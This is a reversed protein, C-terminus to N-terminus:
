AAFARWARFNKPKPDDARLSQQRLAARRASAWNGGACRGLARAPASGAAPRRRDALRCVPEKVPGTSSRQRDCRCRNGSQTDPYVSTTSLRTSCGSPCFGGAARRYSRPSRVASIGSATLWGSDLGDAIWAAMGEKGSIQIRRTLPRHKLSKRFRTPEGQMAPRSRILPELNSCSFGSAGLTGARCRRRSIRRSAAPCFSSM